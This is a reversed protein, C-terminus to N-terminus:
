WVLEFLQTLHVFICIQKEEKEILWERNGEELVTISDKRKVPAALDPLSHNYQNTQMSCIAHTYMDWQVAISFSISYTETQSVNILLICLLILWTYHWGDLKPDYFSLMVSINYREAEEKFTPRIPSSYGKSCLSFAVARYKAWIYQLTQTNGPNCRTKKM